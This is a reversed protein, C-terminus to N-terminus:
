DIGLERERGELRAPCSVPRNSPTSGCRYVPEEPRQLRPMGVGVSGLVAMVGLWQRVKRVFPSPCSPPAALGEPHRHGQTQEEEGQGAPGRRLLQGM